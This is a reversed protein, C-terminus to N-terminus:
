RVAELVAECLAVDVADVPVLLDAELLLITAEPRIDYFEVVEKLGMGTRIIGVGRGTSGDLGRTLWWLGDMVYMADVEDFAGLRWARAVMGCVTDWFLPAPSGALARRSREALRVVMADVGAESPAGMAALDVVVSWDCGLRVLRNAIGPWGDHAIEGAPGTALSHIM